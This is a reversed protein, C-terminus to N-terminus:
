RPTNTSDAATLQYQVTRDLGATPIVVTKFPQFGSKRVEIHHETASLDLSQPTKGRPVGDVLLEADAPDGRVDVRAVIPELRALVSLKRGPDAFVARVWNKYGPASLVVQHAIGSPLDIEAPTRGLHIGAVTADAGSPESRLTLHADPQGLTVPGVRLTEGAKLVVSSAWIKHGPAAIQIRRVGSPAPITVPAVGGDVGDVSVHGGEPISLVQLAGWSTQLPVRLDQRQGAGAVDVNAIYDVYHPATVIVTRAGAPVSLIGPARGVEVGDVSVTAGIGGTDIHLQGPLKGLRLRVTSAGDGRVSISEQAAYYGEREARVLHKGPLLLLQGAQHIVFLTGPTLVRADTPYIDLAVSQLLSTVVFALVLATAVAAGVLWRYTSSRAPARDSAKSALTSVRLTDLPHIEVDEDGGDGVVVTALMAAPAITANGALHHVELRLLTRSAGTVVIQADGLSLADNAHLDCATALPRGNLRVANIAPEAVWVAKRREITLARCPPMGPVIVDPSVGQPDSGGISVTAGLVREGLPERVRVQAYAVSRM